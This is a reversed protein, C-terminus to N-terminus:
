RRGLDPAADPAFVPRRSVLLNGTIQMYHAFASDEELSTEALKFSPDAAALQPLFATEVFEIDGLAFKACEYEVAEGLWHSVLHAASQPTFAAWGSRCGLWAYLQPWDKILSATKGM